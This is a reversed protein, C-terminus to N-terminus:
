RQLFPSTVNSWAAEPDSALNRLAQTMANFADEPSSCLGSADWASGENDRRHVLWHWQGDKPMLHGWHLPADFSSRVRRLQQLNSIEVPDTVVTLGIAHFTM